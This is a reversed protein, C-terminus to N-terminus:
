RLYVFEPYAVVSIAVPGEGANVVIPGNLTQLIRGTAATLVTVSLGAAPRIDLVKLEPARRICGEYYRLFDESTEIKRVVMPQICRDVAGQLASRAIGEGERRITAPHGLLAGGRISLSHSLDRLLASGAPAKTEIAIGMVDKQILDSKVIVTTEYRGSVAEMCPGLAREAEKLTFPKFSQADIVRCEALGAFADQPQLPKLADNLALDFDPEPLYRVLQEQARSLTPIIVAALTLIALYRAAKKM